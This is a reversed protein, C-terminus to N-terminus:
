ETEPSIASISPQPSLGLKANETPPRFGRKWGGGLKGLRFRQQTLMPRPSLGRRLELEYKATVDFEACNPALTSRHAAASPNLIWPQIPKAANNMKEGNENTISKEAPRTTSNWPWESHLMWMSPMSAPGCGHCTCPSALKWMRNMSMLADTSR